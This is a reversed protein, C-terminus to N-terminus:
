YFTGHGSRAGKINVLINRGAGGVNRTRRRPTAAVNGGVEAPKPVLGPTAPTSRGTGGQVGAYRLLHRRLHQDPRQEALPATVFGM